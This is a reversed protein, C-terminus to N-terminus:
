NIFLLKIHVRLFLVGEDEDFVIPVADDVVVTQVHFGFKCFGVDLVVCTQSNDFGLVQALRWLDNIREALLRFLLQFDAISESKMQNVVLAHM